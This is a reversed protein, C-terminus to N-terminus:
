FGGFGGRLQQGPAAITVSRAQVGGNSPTGVAAVNDGVKVDTIKLETQQSVRTNADVYVTKSGGSPLKVTISSSDQAIVTGTAIGGAAIRGAGGARGNGGGQGGGFGGQGSGGGALGGTGAGRSFSPAQAKQYTVGGYFGLAGALVAALLAWMVTKM